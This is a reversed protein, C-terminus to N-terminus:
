DALDQNQIEGNLLFMVVSDAFATESSRLGALDLSMVFVDGWQPHRYGFGPREIFGIRKYLNKMQQVHTRLVLDSAETRDAILCLCRMLGLQILLGQRPNRHEPGVWLGGVQAPRRSDGVLANLDVNSEIELPRHEPGLMRCGAVLNEKQDMAVVHRATEDFEDVGHFGLESAYVRRRAEVAADRLAGRALCFHLKQFLADRHNLNADM